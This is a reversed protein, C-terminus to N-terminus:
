ERPTDREMPFKIEDNLSVLVWWIPEPWHNEFHYHDSMRLNYVHPAYPFRLSGARRLSTIAQSLALSDRGSASTPGLAKGTAASDAKVKLEADAVGSGALFGLVFASREENTMARWHEGNLQYWPLAPMAAFAVGGAFGLALLLAAAAVRRRATM